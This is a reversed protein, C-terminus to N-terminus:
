RQSERERERKGYLGSYKNALQLCCDLCVCQAVMSFAYFTYLQSLSLCVLHSLAFFYALLDFLKRKSSISGVRRTYKKHCM